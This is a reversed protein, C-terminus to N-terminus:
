LYKESWYDNWMHYTVDIFRCNKANPFLPSSIITKAFPEVAHRFEQISESEGLRAVVEDFIEGETM